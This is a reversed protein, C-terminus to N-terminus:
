LLRYNQIGKMSLLYRKQTMQVIRSAIAEDVDLMYEVTKESTFITLMNAEYRNNVIEYMYKIQAPTIEAKNNSKFLDDILLVQTKICDGMEKSYEEKDMASQSLSRVLDKYNKYRVDYGNAMFNNLASVALHTKGSGVQGFLLMANARQAKDLSEDIGQRYFEVAMKKVFEQQKTETKFNFFTSNRFLQSINASEIKQQQIKRKTCECQKAAPYINGYKDTKECFILGSDKCIPCEYSKTTQSTQQHDQTM